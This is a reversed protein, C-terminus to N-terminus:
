RRLLFFLGLGLAGLGMFLETDGFLYGGKIIGRADLLDSKNKWIIIWGPIEFLVGPDPGKPLALQYTKFPTEQGMYGMNVNTTPVVFDYPVYQGNLPNYQM